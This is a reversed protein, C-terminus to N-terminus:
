GCFIRAVRGNKDFEVNLRDERFDMTVPQGPRIMRVPGPFTIAAFDSEAKGVLSQFGAAGCSDAGQVPVPECGALSVLGALAAMATKINM